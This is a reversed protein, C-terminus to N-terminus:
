DCSRSLDGSTNTPTLAKVADLARAADPTPTKVPDRTQLLM